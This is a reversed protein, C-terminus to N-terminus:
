TDMSVCEEYTCHWPQETSTSVWWRKKNTLWKLLWRIFRQYWYPFFNNIVSNWLMNYITRLYTRVLSDETESLNNAEKPFMLLLMEYM